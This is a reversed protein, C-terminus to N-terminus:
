FVDALVQGSFKLEANVNPINYVPVVAGLVTPFHLIKGPSGQLQENTMPGDSAGFFVTQAQIQRVGAGSGVSQYNIRINPHQKNYEDFWKSYIPNPFTAGAGNIMITQAAVVAGLAVTTALATATLTKM